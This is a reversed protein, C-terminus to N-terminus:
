CRVWREGDATAAATASIAAAIEGDVSPEQMDKYAIARRVDLFMSRQKFYMCIVYTTRPRELVYSM